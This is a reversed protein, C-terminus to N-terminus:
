ETRRKAQPPRALFQDLLQEDIRQGGLRRLLADIRDCGWFLEDALRFTPVGFVGLEIARASADVLRQKLASDQAALALAAGDLGCDHALAQLVAGDTLDAGGEWAAKCLAQAFALRLAPREIALCMRLAALPNFPHGPPGQFPLGQASAERMVDRFTYRRKADIEAPGKQGHAKLMAAFLVPQVDIVCGAAAIRALQTSALWAYPSIPDFYFTVVPLTSM